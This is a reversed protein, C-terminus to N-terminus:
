SNNSDKLDQNAQKQAKKAEAGANVTPDLSHIASGLSMTKTTGSTAASTSSCSTGQGTMAFKLCGFKIGLNQSVHVAAVCQGLNKFGQCAQTAPEHTMNSIKTAITTNNKLQQDITVGHTSGTGGGNNASMNGHGMSNGAGTPGHVHQALVPTTWLAVAMALMLISLKM